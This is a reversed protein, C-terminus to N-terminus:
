DMLILNQNKDKVTKLQPALGFSSFKGGVDVVKASKIFEKM